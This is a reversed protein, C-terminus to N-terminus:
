GPSSEINRSDVPPESALSGPLPSGGPTDGAATAPAKEPAGVQIAYESGEQLNTQKGERDVVNLSGKNIKLLGSDGGCSCEVSANGGATGEHGLCSLKVADSQGTRVTVKGDLVEITSGPPIPPISEGAGVLAIEGSPFTILVTGTFNSELAIEAFAPLALITILLCAIVLSRKTKM